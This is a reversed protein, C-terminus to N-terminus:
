GDRRAELPWGLGRACKGKGRSNRQPVQRAARRVAACPVCPKEHRYGHQAWGRMTGHERPLPRRGM